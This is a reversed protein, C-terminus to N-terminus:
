NNALSNKVANSTIIYCVKVKPQLDHLVNEDLIIYDSDQQDVVM